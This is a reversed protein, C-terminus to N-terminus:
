EDVQESKGILVELHSISDPHIDRMIDYFNMNMFKQIRRILLPAPHSPEFNEFYVCIKELVLDVDHRNKLSMQRWADAPNSLMITALERQLEPTNTDAINNIVMNNNNAKLSDPVAIADQILILPRLVCSFDITAEDGLHQMCIKQIAQLNEISQRLAISEAKEADASVRIDLLLRERGGPYDQNDQGQLLNIAERVSVPQQTLGNTLLRAALVEKAIGDIVTFLSFANVRYFPDYEGDEDKLAPYLTDWFQRINTLIANCGAALGELGYKATLAQTYFAFVRLDKSEALLQHCLKEVIAWDPEQAPIVTDGYQQEAKGEAATQLELFRSDYEIDVGSPADASIPTDWVSFIKNM